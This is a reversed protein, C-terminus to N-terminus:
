TLKTQQNAIKTKQKKVIDEITTGSILGGVVGGVIAGVIAGGTTGSKAVSKSGIISGGKGGIVGLPIGCIVGFAASVITGPSDSDTFKNYTYLTAVTGGTLAGILANCM